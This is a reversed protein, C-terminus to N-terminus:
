LAMIFMKTGAIVLVVGLVKRLRAPALRRVALESGVVGTMVTDPGVAAVTLPIPMNQYYVTVTDGPEADLDKAAKESLVVDNPGLASVDIRNGDLDRVGGFADAGAPDFGSVSIEPEAQGKAENVAPMLEILDALIGDIDPDDRFTEEVLAFADDDIKVSLGNNVDGEISQSYVVLEDLGGLLDYTEQSVSHDLTDGTGLAASTILTSLMLGVVILVTQAKRRPINRVGLKFIVPRRWAVMAIALLGIGLLVLLAIMIGGMPLGFVKNM